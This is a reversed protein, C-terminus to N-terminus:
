PVLKQEEKMTFVANWLPFQEPTTGSGTNRGASYGALTQNSPFIGAIREFSVYFGAFYRVLGNVTTNDVTGSALFRTNTNGPEQFLQRNDLLTIQHDDSTPSRLAASVSRIGKLTLLQEDTLFTNFFFRHKEADLENILGNVIPEGFPSYETQSVTSDILQRSYGLGDWDSYHNLTLVLPAAPSAFPNIISLQVDDEGIIIGNNPM